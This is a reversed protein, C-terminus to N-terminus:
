VREVLLTVGGLHVGSSFANVNVPRRGRFGDPVDVTVAVDIEAGADLEPAPPAFAVSWGAPLPATQGHRAVAREASGPEAPAREGCPPQPPLDYGDTRFEVTRRRATANRLRFATKAPSHAAVVSTNTQGLNNNPNADDYCDIFAQLCYHGPAAPTRWAVTALAPAAPSGKVGLNVTTSGIPHSTTGIGFSLYSFVVPLGAAPAETSANWIRAHVDYATDPALAWQDVAIGARSITIDPNQWTVPFGLGMLYYQDYILPDPRKMAPSPIPYCHQQPRARCSRILARLAALLQPCAGATRKLISGLLAAFALAVARLLGM